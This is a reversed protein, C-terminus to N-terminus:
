AHVARRAPVDAGGAPRHQRYRLCLAAGRGAHDGAGAGLEALQGRAREPPCLPGAADAAAAIIIGTRGTARGDGSLVSLAIMAPGRPCLRPSRRQLLAFFPTLTVANDYEGGLMLGAQVEGAVAHGASDDVPSVSIFSFAVKAPRAVARAM